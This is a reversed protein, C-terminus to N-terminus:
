LLPHWISSHNNKLLLCFSVSLLGSWSRPDPISPIRSRTGLGSDSGFFFQKEFVSYQPVPCLSCLLGWLVGDPTNKTGVFIVFVVFGWDPIGLGLGLRSDIWRMKHIFSAACHTCLDTIERQPMKLACENRQFDGKTAHKPKKRYCSSLWALENTFCGLGLFKFKQHFISRTMEAITTKLRQSATSLDLNLVHRSVPKQLRYLPWSVM